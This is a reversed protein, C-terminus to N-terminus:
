NKDQIRKFKREIEQKTMSIITPRGHPCTFPSDLTLLEDILRDAEEFTLKQNGKVSAKCAMTAIKSPIMTTDTGAVNEMLEDLLELFADQDAIGYLDTPVGRIAYENGGFPEIEFGMDAFFDKCDEYCVAEKPTMSIVIPPSVQQVFLNKKEKYRKMFREYNVKEHAAHQDMIFLQNDYEILWYTAFLQGIVRHDPRASAEMFPIANLSLQEPKKPKEEPIEATATYSAQEEVRSPKPEKPATVTTTQIEKQFPVPIQATEKAAAVAAQAQEPRVLAEQVQETVPMVVRKEAPKEVSPLPRGELRKEVTKRATEFPQAGVPASKEIVVKKKQEPSVSATPILDKTLLTQRIANKLVEYLRREQKFRLEMKSPHVNVDMQGPDITFNLCVFPFRHIMTFTKYADEVAKYIM